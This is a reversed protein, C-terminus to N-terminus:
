LVLGAQRCKWGCALVRKLVGQVRFSKHISGGDL